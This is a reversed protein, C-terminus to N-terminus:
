ALGLAHSRLPSPPGNNLRSNYLVLDGLSGDDIMQQVLDVLETGRNPLTLASFVGRETCLEAAPRLRAACDAFPKDLLFPLDREACARVTTRCRPINAPSWSPTPAAPTSANAQLASPPVSFSM